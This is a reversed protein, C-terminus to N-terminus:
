STSKFSSTLEKESYAPVGMEIDLGAIEDAASSRVGGKTFRNQIKFFGYVLIFNVVLITAGGLAQAGLQGWDGKIIGAIGTSDSGNWGTGYSGDSFIGVALVGFLGCTGHVSIAGVPDDIRLREELFYSSEIALVAAVAGIVAAAWPAVFACSATIAVLGALMGNIMMAPNPKGTRRTIWLMGVVAGFAAALATNTAVTAFQIDTASLTSAANFGFWGFLLILAGLMAMPINHGQMAIAKGDESYKGIRPGLVIAGALAAVGGVLHV